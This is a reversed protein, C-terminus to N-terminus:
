RKGNGRRSRFWKILLEQSVGWTTCHQTASDKQHVLLTEQGNATHKVMRLVECAGKCPVAWWGEDSALWDRFLPLKTIHLMNRSRNM